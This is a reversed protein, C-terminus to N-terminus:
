TQDKQAAIAADCMDALNQNLLAKVADGKATHHQSYQRFVTACHKLSADLSLKEDYLEKYLNNSLELAAYLNAVLVDADGVAKATGNEVEYLGGDRHIRCLLNSLQQSTADRERAFKCAQDASCECRQAENAVRLRHQLDDIVTYTLEVEACKAQYDAELAELADIYEAAEQVYNTGHMQYQERLREQLTKM